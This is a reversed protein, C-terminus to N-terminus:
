EACIQLVVFIKLQTKMNGFESCILSAALLRQLVGCDESKDYDRSSLASEACIQQLFFVKLQPNM